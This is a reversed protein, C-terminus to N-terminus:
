AAWPASGAAFFRGLFVTPILIILSWALGCYLAHGALANILADLPDLKLFPNVPFAPRRDVNSVDFLKTRALFWVFLIFFV